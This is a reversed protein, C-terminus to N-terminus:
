GVSPAVGREIEFWRAASLHYDAGVGRNGSSRRAAAAPSGWALDASFPPDAIEADRREWGTQLESVLTEVEARALGGEDPRAIAPRQSAPM